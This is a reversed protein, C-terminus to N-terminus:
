PCINDRLSSNGLYSIHCSLPAGMRQQQLVVLEAPSQHESMTEGLETKWRVSKPRREQNKAVTGAGKPRATTLSAHSFGLLTDVPVTDGAYVSVV